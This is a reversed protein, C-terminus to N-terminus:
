KYAFESSIRLNVIGNNESQRQLYLTDCIMQFDYVVTYKVMFSYCVRFCISISISPFFFCFCFTEAYQVCASGIEKNESESLLKNGNNLHVYWQYRYTPTCM